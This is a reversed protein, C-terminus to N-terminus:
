TPTSTLQKIKKGENVMSPRSRHGSEQLGDQCAPFTGPCLNCLHTEPQQKVKKRSAILAKPRLAQGRPIWSPGVRPRKIFIKWGQAKTPSSLFCAHEPMELFMVM